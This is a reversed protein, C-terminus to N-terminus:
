VVAAAVPALDEACSSSAKGGFGEQMASISTAKWEGDSKSFKIHYILDYCASGTTYSPEPWTQSPCKKPWVLFDERDPVDLAEVLAGIDTHQWSVAVTASDSLLKVVEKAFCTPDEKDCPMLVETGLKEALPTVTDRPRHSKNERVISAM